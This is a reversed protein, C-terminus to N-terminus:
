GIRVAFVDAQGLSQYWLYDIWIRDALFVAAIGAGLAFAATLWWKLKKLMTRLKM